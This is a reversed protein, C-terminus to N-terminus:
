GFHTREHRETYAKAGLITNNTAAAIALRKKRPSMLAFEAMKRKHEEGLSNYCSNKLMPLLAGEQEFIIRDRIEEQSLQSM